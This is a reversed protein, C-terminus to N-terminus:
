ALVDRASCLKRCGQPRGSPWFDLASNRLRTCRCSCCSVRQAVCPLPGCGPCYAAAAPRFAFSAGCVFRMAVENFASLSSIVQYAELHHYPKLRASRSLLSAVLSAARLEYNLDSEAKVRVAAVGTTQGLCDRSLLTVLYSFLVALRCNQM